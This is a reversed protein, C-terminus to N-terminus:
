AQHHYVSAISCQSPKHKCGLSLNPIQNKSRRKGTGQFRGGGFLHHIHPVSINDKIKKKEKDDHYFSLPIEHNSMVLAENAPSRWDIDQIVMAKPPIKPLKNPPYASFLKCISIIKIRKETRGETCSTEHPKTLSFGTPLLTKGSNEAGFSDWVIFPFKTSSSLLENSFDLVLVELLFFFCFFLLFLGTMVLLNWIGSFSPENATRHNWDRFIAVLVKNRANRCGTM